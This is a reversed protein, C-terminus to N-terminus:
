VETISYFSVIPNRGVAVVVGSETTANRPPLYVADTVAEAGFLSWKRYSLTPPIAYPSDSSHSQALLVAAVFSLGTIAVM